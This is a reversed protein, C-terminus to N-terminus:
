EKKWHLGLCFAWDLEFLIGHHLAWGKSLRLESKIIFIVFHSVWKICWKFIVALKDKMVATKLLIALPFRKGVYLRFWGMKAGSCNLPILDFLRIFSLILSNNLVCGKKRKRKSVRGNNKRLMSFASYIKIYKVENNYWKSTLWWWAKKTKNNKDEKQKEKTEKVGLWWTNDKNHIPEPLAVRWDSAQRGGPCKKIPTNMMKNTQPVEKSDTCM